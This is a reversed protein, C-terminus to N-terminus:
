SLELPRVRGRVRTTDGVQAGDRRWGDTRNELDVAGVEADVSEGRFRRDRVQRRQTMLPVHREDHVEAAPQQLRICSQRLLRIGRGREGGPRVDDDCGSVLQQATRLRPDEQAPRVDDRSQGAVRHRPRHTGVFEREGRELGGECGALRGDVLCEVEIGLDQAEARFAEGGREVPLHSRAHLPHLGTGAHGLSCDFTRGRIRILRLGASAEDGRVDHLM